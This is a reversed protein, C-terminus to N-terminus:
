GWSRVHHWLSSVKTDWHTRLTMLGLGTTSCSVAETRSAARAMASALTPGTSTTSRWSARRPTTVSRSMTTRATAVPRVDRGGGQALHAGLLRDAQRRRIRYAFRDAHHAPMCHTSEGHHLGSSRDTHDGDTVQHQTRIGHGRRLQPRGEDVDHCRRRIARRRLRVRIDSGREATAPHRPRWRCGRVFIIRASGSSEQSAEFGPWGPPVRAAPLIPCHARFGLVIEDLLRKVWCRCSPTKRGPGRNSAQGSDIGCYSGKTRGAVM